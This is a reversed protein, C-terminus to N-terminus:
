KSSSIVFIQHNSFKNKKKLIQHIHAMNEISFGKYLDFNSSIKGLVIVSTWWLAVMRMHLSILM